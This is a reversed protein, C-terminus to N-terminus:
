RVIATKGSGLPGYVKVVRVRKMSDTLLNFIKHIEINRGFIKTGTYIACGIEWKTM